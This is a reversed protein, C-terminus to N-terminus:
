ILLNELQTMRLITFTKTISETDNMHILKNM